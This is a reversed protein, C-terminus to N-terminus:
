SPTRAAGAKSAPKTDYWGTLMSRLNNWAGSLLVMSVHVLVFLVIANALAFHVSRASQRGGFFSLLFPFESDLGPSMTLGAVAMVPLLGFVTLLYALKQLVNYRRAEAGHPFRLLLHDLVASGIRRLQRRDPALDSRFHSSATGSILYVLGNLVFLWAFLFHWRRGTALDQDNPLTTWRPFAREDNEMDSGSSIGLVGTTDFRRGLVVVTGHPRDHEGEAKIQLWPHEFDSSQGWYLAPHANFIQLGSMLLVTLCVVNVWHTVRVVVSHRYIWGDLEVGAKNHSPM